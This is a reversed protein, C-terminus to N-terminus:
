VLTSPHGNADDVFGIMGIEMQIEEIQIVISQKTHNFTMVILSYSHHFFRQHIEMAKVQEM